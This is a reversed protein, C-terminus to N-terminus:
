WKTFLNWGELSGNWGFEIWFLFNTKKGRGEPNEEGRGEMSRFPRTRSTVAAKKCAGGIKEILSKGNQVDGRLAWTVV